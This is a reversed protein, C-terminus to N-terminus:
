HRGARYVDRVSRDPASVIDAKVGDRAHSEEFPGRRRETPDRREISRIRGTAQHDNWFRAAPAAPSRIAFYVHVDRCKRECSGRMASVARMSLPRADKVTHRATHARVRRGVLMVVSVTRADFRVSLTPVGFAFDLTFQAHSRGHWLQLGEPLLSTWPVATEFYSERELSGPRHDTSNMTGFLAM